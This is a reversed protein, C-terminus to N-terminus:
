PKSLNGGNLVEKRLYFYSPGKKTLKYIGVLHNNTKLGRNTSKLNVVEHLVRRYKSMPENGSHELTRKILGKSKIKIKDTNSDYCRYM